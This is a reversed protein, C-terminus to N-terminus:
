RKHESRPVYICYFYTRLMAALPCRFGGTGISHLSYAEKLSSLAPCFVLRLDKWFLRVISSGLVRPSSWVGRLQPCGCCGSIAYERVRCAHLLRANGTALRPPCPSITTSRPQGHGHRRYLAGYAYALRIKIYM